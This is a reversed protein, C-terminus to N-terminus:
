RIEGRGKGRKGIILLSTIGYIILILGFISIAYSILSIPIDHPLIHIVMFFSICWGVMLMLVGVTLELKVGM